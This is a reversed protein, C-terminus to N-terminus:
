LYKILKDIEDYFQTDYKMKHYYCIKEISKLIKGNIIKCCILSAILIIAIPVFILCVMMVNIM